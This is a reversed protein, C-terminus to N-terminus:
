QKLNKKNENFETIIRSLEQNILDAKFAKFKKEPPKIEPPEAKPTPYYISYFEQYTKASFLAKYNEKIIYNSNLGFIDLM